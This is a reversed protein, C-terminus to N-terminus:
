NFSHKAVESLHIGFCCFTGTIAIGAEIMEALVTLGIAIGRTKTKSLRALVFHYTLQHFQSSASGVIRTTISTNRRVIEKKGLLIGPQYPICFFIVSRHKAAGFRGPVQTVAVHSLREFRENSM